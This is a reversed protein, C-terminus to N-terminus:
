GKSIEATIWCGPVTRLEDMIGDSLHSKIFQLPTHVKLKMPCLCVECINIKDDHDTRLNRNNLEALQRRIAESAPQTFWRTFDGKGNQPCAACKLARANSQEQPVAPAKSDLWDNLTRVGAWIKKVKAGAASIQEAEQRSPPRSKPPSPAGVDVALYDTWGMKECIAANYAEVDRAVGDHDTAWGYKAAIAPNARRAVMLANTIAEFSAHPRSHFSIEPQVFKFGNPIQM